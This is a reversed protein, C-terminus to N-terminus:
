QTCTCQASDNLNGTGFGLVTLFVGRERESEILRVLAGQSTVGVNFDGDTALIVRNVAAADFHETALEYARQIGSAGNTSGGAVLADIASLIPAQNGGRTPELVVGSAGAYVVIAVHDRDNLQPALLRLAAQLLPLKDPSEMSGSVDILFVLNRAPVSAARAAAARLSIRLLENGAHFPSHTFDTALSLAESERAQPVDYDFYNILEEVRVADPPPLRGQNLFRRVNSYSATDVDVSFTTLPQETALRFGTDAIHDYRETSALPLAGAPRAPAAM